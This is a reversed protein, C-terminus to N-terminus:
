SFPLKVLEKGEVVVLEVDEGRLVLLVEVVDSVLGELEVVTGLVVVVVVVAGGGGAVVAVVSVVFVVVVVM